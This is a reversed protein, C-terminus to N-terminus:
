EKMIMNRITYIKLYKKVTLVMYDGLSYLLIEM